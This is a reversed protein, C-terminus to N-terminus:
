ENKGGYVKEIFENVIKLGAIKGKAYDNDPYVKLFENSSEILSDILDKINEVDANM